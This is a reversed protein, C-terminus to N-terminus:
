NAIEIAALRGSRIADEAKAVKLADGALIYQIKAKKIEDEIPVYSKMGTALVILDIGELMISNEGELQVRDKDISIVKTNFYVPVKEDKLHKLIFKAEIMEMGRAIEGLMEVIAIKNKANLLHHAVETGILGGGIILINKNQPLNEKELVEAWVYDNLGPINPLAPVSGTAIVVSKYNELDKITAQKKYVSIERYILQEKYYDVLKKLSEKKDPLYALNFQGGLKYHEFLSVKHGMKSLQLAAELGALGGGVVAYNQPKIAYNVNPAIEGVDPNVLCHLTRGAKVGGLCGDSCALCPRIIDDNEGLYKGVFDPDAIMARGVAIYDAQYTTELEEIDEKTNIQGMFIVSIGIAEKIKAAMEWTKKKPIFMHQYYWPPTSCVSGATIHLAEVGIKEILKALQISEDIQIGDPIMEAASMRIIIPLASVSKIGQLVELALRSRNEFSGGYEDTRKNVKPSLFQAVLYGYGFQIELADFGAKEARIAANKWIEIAENIQEISMIQPKAGGNECAEDTSSLYYNGPIIPNAMRGPHNLHAIAKAGGAHITETLTQLGPIMEDSHIGIQVPLERLGKDIYFPEPIIAGIFHARRAYFQLHKDTINGEITGYATKIPPM